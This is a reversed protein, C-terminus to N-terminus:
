KRFLTIMLINFSNIITKNKRRKNIKKFSQLSILKNFKNRETLTLRKQWNCLIKNVWKMLKRKICNVWKTNQIWISTDWRRHITKHAAIVFRATNTNHPIKLLKFYSAAIHLNYCILSVIISLRVIHSIQPLGESTGSRPHNITITNTEETVFRTELSLARAQM